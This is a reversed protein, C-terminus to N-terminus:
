IAQPNFFHCKSRYSGELHFGTSTDTYYRNMKTEHDINANPELWGFSIM